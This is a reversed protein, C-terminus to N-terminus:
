SCRLSSILYEENLKMNEVEVTTEYKCCGYVDREFGYIELQDDFELDTVPIVETKHRKKEKILGEGLM